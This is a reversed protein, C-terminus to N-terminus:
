SSGKQAKAELILGKIIEIMLPSLHSFPEDLVAFKSKSRLIIYIELLRRQGGSLSSVRNLYKIKFEPFQTEFDSYNLEFDNFVTKLLLSSPIFNSQPLYAIVDPHKYAEKLHLGDIRISASNTQRTGYLINLLSTKGNGNKGLLGTVKGTECKLYIDSLIKRNGFELFVGDAELIHKM